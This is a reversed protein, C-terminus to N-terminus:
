KCLRNTEFMTTFGAYRVAVERMEEWGVTGEHDDLDYVAIAVESSGGATFVYGGVHPGGNLHRYLIDDTLPAVCKRYDKGVKVAYADTRVRNALPRLWEIRPDPAVSPKSEAGNASYESRDEGM